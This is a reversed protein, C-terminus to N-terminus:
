LAGSELLHPGLTRILFDAPRDWFAAGASQPLDNHTGGEVWYSEKTSASREFIKRGMEFPVIEDATGHILFIPSKVSAIKSENDFMFNKVLFGPARFGYHVRAMDPLTTFPAMLVLAGATEALALDISPACGISEGYLVIKEAPIGREQRLWCYAARADDTMDKEHHIQGSSRGYGRYDLMFCGFGRDAWGKAISLRHSINGANGHLYLLVPRNKSAPIYWCYLDVGQSVNLTVTEASLGIDKPEYELVPDPFFIMSTIPGEFM